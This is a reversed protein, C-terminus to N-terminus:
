LQVTIGDPHSIVGTAPNAYIPGEFLNTIPVGQYWFGLTSSQTTQTGGAPGNARLGVQGLIEKSGNLDAAATSSYVTHSITQSWGLATASACLVVFWVVMWKHNASLQM